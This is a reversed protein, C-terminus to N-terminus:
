LRGDISFLSSFFSRTFLLLFLIDNVKRPHRVTEHNEWETLKEAIHRYQNNLNMVFIARLIVPIFSKWASTADFISGPEALQAFWPFYLPHKEDGWQELDESSIYGQLNMGIVMVFTAGALLVATVLASVAFKLLRKHYPYFKEMRGTVPSKRMEGVFEPRQGFSIRDRYSSAYTGWLYALRSERREWCRECLAAWFFTALGFFPTFDCNDVTDGRAKRIVYVVLGLLGPIMFWKTMFDMWAFHFAVGEGYYSQISQIPMGTKLSATERLIKEKLHSSHVPGIVDVFGNNKLVQVLSKPHHQETNAECHMVKLSDLVRSLESSEEDKELVPLANLMSLLLLARDASTFLGESDYDSRDIEPLNKVLNENFCVDSDQINVFDDRADVTFHEMIIPIQDNQTRSPKVMGILEAENELMAQTTTLGFVVAKSTTCSAAKDDDDDRGESTVVVIGAHALRGITHHILDSKANQSFRLLLIPISEVSPLVMM